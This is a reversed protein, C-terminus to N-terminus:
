KTKGKWKIKLEEKNVDLILADKIITSNITLLFIDIYWPYLDFVIIEITTYALFVTIIYFLIKVILDVRM